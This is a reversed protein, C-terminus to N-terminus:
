ETYIIKDWTTSFTNNEGESNNKDQHELQM